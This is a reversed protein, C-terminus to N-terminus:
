SRGREELSGYSDTYRASSLDAEGTTYENYRTLSSFFVCERMRSVFFVCRFFDDTEFLAGM